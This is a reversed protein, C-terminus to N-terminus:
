DVALYNLYPGRRSLYTSPTLGSFARFEHIFHAQDYYGCGTAVDAWDPSSNHGIWGIARQFSALRAFMKPTLGVCRDFERLLHKHSVGIKDAIQRIGIRKERNRIMGLASKVAPTPPTGIQLRRLLWWQLVAFREDTNAVDNIRESLHDAERGLVADLEVVHGTLESIPLGLFPWAGGARFRIGVLDVYGREDIVLPESREGSIWSRRFITQKTYDTRHCLRQPDGLNVILEVAGDPLIMNRWSSTLYGRAMWLHEVYQALFPVVSFTRHTLVPKDAQREPRARDLCAL